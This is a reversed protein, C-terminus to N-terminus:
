GISQEVLAHLRKLIDQNEELTFGDVLYEQRGTVGDVIGANVLYKFREAEASLAPLLNKKVLVSLAAVIGYAGWNSVSAIVAKDCGITAPEKPLNEDAEIYDAFNGMCIENGGDGIGISPLGRVFLYEIRPTHTTVDEGRMNLHEGSATPGCREVSILLDPEHQGVITDALKTNERHGEVIPYDIVPVPNNTQNLHTTLIESLPTGTAYVVKRDITGLADGLALAGLPGDTEPAGSKPIYFGTTILTKSPHSLIYEAAEQCFFPALHPRLVGIGRRDHSLIIDEISIADTGAQEMNILM